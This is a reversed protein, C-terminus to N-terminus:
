GPFAEISTPQLADCRDLCGSRSAANVTATLLVHKGELPKAARDFHDDGGISVFHDHIALARACQAGPCGHYVLDLDEKTPVIFCDYGGCTVLWGDVRVTKGDWQAPNAMIAKLEVVEGKGRGCAALFAVSALIIPRWM